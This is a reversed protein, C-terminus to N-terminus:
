RRFHDRWAHTVNRKNDIAEIVADEVTGRVIWRVVGVTSKQGRRALRGIGQAFLEQSWPVTYWAMLRGGHQLNLGHAAEAPNAVLVDLERANWADVAGKDAVDTSVLGAKSAIEHIFARDARYEIWVILPERVESLMDAFARRKVGQVFQRLKTLKAGQGLPLGMDDCADARLERYAKRQAPSMDVREITLTMPVQKYPPEIRLTNPAAREAILELATDRPRWIPFSLHRPSVDKHTDHMFDTYSRYGLPSGRQVQAYLGWAIMLGRALPTGTMALRYEPDVIRLWARLRRANLGATLMTAEDIAVADVIVRESQPARKTTHLRNKLARNSLLGITWQGVPPNFVAHPGLWIITAAPCQQALLPEWVHQLVRKPAIILQRQARYRARVLKLWTAGIVSKGAGLPADLVARRMKVLREVAVHQYGYLTLPKSM